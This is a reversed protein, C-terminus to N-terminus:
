DVPRRAPGALAAVCLAALPVLGLAVRWPLGAGNLLGIAYPILAVGFSSSATIAGIATGAMKHFRESGEALLVGFIGSMCLGTLAVGAFVLAPHALLLTLTSCLAAGGALLLHLRGLPVRTIIGSTVTRGIWMAAWFASVTLGALAAGGYLEKEFYTPM